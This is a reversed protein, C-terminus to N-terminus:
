PGLLLQRTHHCFFLLIQSRIKRIRPSYAEVSDDHKKERERCRANFLILLSFTLLCMWKYLSIFCFYYTKSIFYIHNRVRSTLDPRLQCELNDGCFGYKNNYPLRLSSNDCKEGESLGCVPCCGCFDMVTGVPCKGVKQCSGPDCKGCGDPRRHKSRGNVSVIAIVLFLVVITTSASFIPHTM